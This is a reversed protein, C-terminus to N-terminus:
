DNHLISARLHKAEAFLEVFGLEKIFKEFYIKKLLKSKLKYPCNFCSMLLKLNTELHKTSPLYNNDSLKRSTGHVYTLFSYTSTGLVGLVQYYAKM